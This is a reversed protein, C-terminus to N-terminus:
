ETFTQVITSLHVLNKYGHVRRGRPGQLHLHGTSRKEDEYYRPHLPVNRIHTKQEAFKVYRCERM